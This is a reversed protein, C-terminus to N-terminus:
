YIKDCNYYTDYIKSKCKWTHISKSILSILLYFIFHSNIKLEHNYKKDDFPTSFVLSSHLLVSLRLILDIDIMQTLFLFFYTFHM